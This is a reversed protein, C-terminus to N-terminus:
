SSVFSFICVDLSLFSPILIKFEYFDYFQKSLAIRWRLSICSIYYSVVRYLAFFFRTRGILSHFLLLLRSNLRLILIKGTRIFIVICLWNKVESEYNLDRFLEIWKEKRRAKVRQWSLNTFIVFILFITEIVRFGLRLCSICSYM